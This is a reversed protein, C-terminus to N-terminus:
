HGTVSSCKFLHVFLETFDGRYVCVKMHMMIEARYSLFQMSFPMRTGFQDYCKSLGTERCVCGSLGQLYLCISNQHIHPHTHLPETHVCYPECHECLSGPWVINGWLSSYTAAM